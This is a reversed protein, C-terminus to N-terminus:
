IATLRCHKCRLATVFRDSASLLFPGRRSSDAGISPSSAHRHVPDAFLVLPSPYCRCALTPPLVLAFPRAATSRRCATTTCTTFGLRRAVQDSDSAREASM